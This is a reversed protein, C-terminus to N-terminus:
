GPAVAANEPATAELPISESRRNESPIRGSLSTRLLSRAPGETGGIKVISERRGNEARVTNGNRRLSRRSQLLFRRNPMTLNVAVLSPYSASCVTVSGHGRRAM